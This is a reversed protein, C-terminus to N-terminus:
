IECCLEKSYQGFHNHLRSQKTCLFAKNSLFFTMPILFVSECFVIFTFM